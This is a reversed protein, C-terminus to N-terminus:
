AGVCVTALLVRREDWEASPAIEGRLMASAFSLRTYIHAERNSPSNAGPCTGRAWNCQNSLKCGVRSCTVWAIIDYCIKVCVNERTSYNVWEWASVSQVGLRLNVFIISFWKIWVKRRRVILRLKKSLGISVTKHKTGTSERRTRHTKLTKNKNLAKTKHQLYNKCLFTFPNKYHWFIKRPRINKDKLHTPARTSIKTYSKCKASSNQFKKDRWQERCTQGLRKGTPGRPTYRLRKPM